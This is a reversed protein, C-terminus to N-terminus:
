QLLIFFLLLTQSINFHQFGCSKFKNTVSHSHPTIESSVITPTILHNKERHYPIYSASSLAYTKSSSIILKTRSIGLKVNLYLERASLHSYTESAWWLTQAVFISQCTMPVHTYIPITPIKWPSIPLPSLWFYYAPPSVFFLSSASLWLYTVWCRTLRLEKALSNLIKLLLHFLTYM